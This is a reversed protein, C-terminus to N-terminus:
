NLSEHKLNLDLKKSLAVVLNRVLPGTPAGQEEIRDIM